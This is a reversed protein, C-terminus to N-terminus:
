APTVSERLWQAYEEDAAAIPVALIEPVDYSHLARVRECLADFRASTTKVLLLCEADHAVDGQWVYTSRVGVIQQACAALREAVLTDAVSEAEDRDGFTVRVEILESTM